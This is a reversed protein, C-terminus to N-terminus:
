YDELNQKVDNEGVLVAKVSRIRCSEETQTSNRQTTVQRKRKQEKPSPRQSASAVFFLRMCTQSRIMEEDSESVLGGAAM